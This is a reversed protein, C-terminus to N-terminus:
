SNQSLNTTTAEHLMGIAPKGGKFPFLEIFGHKKYLKGSRFTSSELYAPYQGLKELRYDLLASGIGHNRADEHVGIIYLYWHPFKPRAALLKLETTIASPANKGLLKIYTPLSRVDQAFNGKQGEPSLWLAAGLVKGDDTVAIDINGKEAYTADIQFKFLSAVKEYKGYGGMAQSMVPEKSFADALADITGPYDETRAERVTYEYKLDSM